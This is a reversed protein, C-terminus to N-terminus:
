ILIMDFAKEIEFIGTFFMTCNNYQNLYQFTNLDIYIQLM